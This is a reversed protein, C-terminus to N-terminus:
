YYFALWCGAFSAALLLAVQGSLCLAQWRLLRLAGQSRSLLSRNLLIANLAMNEAPALGLQQFATDLEKLAQEIDQNNALASFLDADLAVRQAWYKEIIGLVLILLGTLTLWGNVTLGLLPALALSIGLLTLLGSAKDLAAGRKLLSVVLILHM